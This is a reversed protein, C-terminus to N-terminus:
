KQLCGKEKRDIYSKRSTVGRFIMSGLDICDKKLSTPSLINKRLRKIFMRPSIYFRRNISQMEKFIYDRPIAPPAYVPYVATYGEGLKKYAFQDIIRTSVIGAKEALDYLPSGPFPTPISLGLLDIGSSLIMTKTEQLESKTETPHGIMFYCVIKIKHRKCQDFVEKIKINTFDGKHIVDKRVRESGSEIGFNISSCGANKMLGLLEDDVLDIRTNCEWIVKLGEHQLAHCLEVIKKRDMTFTDDQFNISGGSHKYTQHIEAILNEVSRYRVKKSISPRSCYYCKFPCGRSFLMSQTKCYKERKILEMDPLPITDLDEIAQGAQIVPIPRKHLLNELSELLSKEAEGTIAYDFLARHRNIFDTDASIHPGGLFIKVDPKVKKVAQATEVAGQLQPTMSSIGISFPNEERMISSLRSLSFNEAGMDIVKARFDSSYTNIYTALYLLGLPPVSVDLTKPEGNSFFLPPNILLINKM